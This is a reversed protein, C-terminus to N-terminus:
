PPDEVRIDSVTSAETPLDAEEFYIFRVREGLEDLNAPANNNEDLSIAVLMGPPMEALRYRLGLPSDNVLAQGMLVRNDNDDGVDLYWRQTRVNWTLVIRYSEGDLQCTYTFSRDGITPTPMRRLTM